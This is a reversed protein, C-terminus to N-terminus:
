RRTPLRRGLHAVVDERNTGLGQDPEPDVDGASAISQSRAVLWVNIRFTLPSSRREDVGEPAFLTERGGVEVAHEVALRADELRRSGSGGRVRDRRGRRATRRSGVRPVIVARRRWEPGAVVEAVQLGHEQSPRREGSASSHGQDQALGVRQALGLREALHPAFRTTIVQSLSLTPPSRRHTARRRPVYGTGKHVAGAPLRRKVGPEMAPAESPRGSSSQRFSALATPALANAGEAGRSTDEGALASANTRRWSSATSEIQFAIPFFVDYTPL